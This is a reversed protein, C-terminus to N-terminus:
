GKKLRLLTKIAESMSLLTKRMTNLLEAQKVEIFQNYDGGPGTVVPAPEPLENLIIEEGLRISKGEETVDDIIKYAYITYKWIAWRRDDTMQRGDDTMQRGNDATRRGDDTTRLFQIVEFGLNCSGCWGCYKRMKYGLDSFDNFDYPMIIPTPLPRYCVLCIADRDTEQEIENNIAVM